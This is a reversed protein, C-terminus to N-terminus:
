QGSHDRDQYHVRRARERGQRGEEEGVLSKQPWREFLNSTRQRLTQKQSFGCQIFWVWITTMIIISVGRPLLLIPLRWFPLLASNGHPVQKNNDNVALFDTLRLSIRQLCCFFWSDWASGSCDPLPFNWFQLSPSCFDRGPLAQLNKTNLSRTPGKEGSISIGHDKVINPPLILSLPSAESAHPITRYHRFYASALTGQCLYSLM